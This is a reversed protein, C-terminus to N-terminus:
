SIQKIKNIEMYVFQFCILCKECLLNKENDRIETMYM